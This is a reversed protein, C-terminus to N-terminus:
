EEDTFLDITDTQSLGCHPCFEYEPSISKDCQFCTVSMNVMRGVRVSIVATMMAFTCIGVLILIGALVKAGVTHPVVDGYGVTSMTVLSWWVGEFANTFTEPELIFALNGVLISVAAISGLVAAVMHIAGSISKLLNMLVPFYTAIKFLRLLRLLRVAVASQEGLILPLITLLDIIGNFSLIYARRERAAYIRLSYELLFVLLVATQFLSIYDDWQQHINPLTNMMSLLVSILIISLISYNSIRGAPSKLDFLHRRLKDRVNEQQRLLAQEASAEEATIGLMINDMETLAEAAAETANNMSPAHDRTPHQITTHM